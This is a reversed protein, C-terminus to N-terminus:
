KNMGEKMIRGMKFRVVRKAPVKVRELTKPNQGTRSKRVRTEFIWFDRFEIRNNKSLESVIEDLLNQVVVKVISQPIDIKDAIKYVLEKKTQTPM